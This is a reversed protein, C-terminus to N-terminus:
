QALPVPPLVVATSVGTDPHQHCMGGWMLNGTQEYLVAWLPNTSTTAFQFKPTFIQNIALQLDNTLDYQEFQDFDLHRSQAVENQNWVQINIDFKPQVSQIFDIDLNAVALTGLVGSFGEAFGECIIQSPAQTYELGDLDLVRDGAIALAQHPYANYRFAQGARFVLADGKLFDWDIEVATKDSDVAWVFMFGKRNNFGQIQTLIGDADTRNYANGTDWWFPEKQTLHIFFDKKEFDHPAGPPHTIIFGALWVDTNARNTIEIITSYNINDILPFVLMSGPENVRSVQAHAAGVWLGIALTLALFIRLKKMKKRRVM